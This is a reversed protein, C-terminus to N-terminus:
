IAVAWNDKTAKDAEVLYKVVVMEDKNREVIVKRIGVMNVSTSIEKLVDGEKSIAVAMNVIDVDLDTENIVEVVQNRVMDPDDEVM